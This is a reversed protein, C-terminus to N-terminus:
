QELVSWRAPAQVALNNIQAARWKTSVKTTSTECHERTRATVRSEGDILPRLGGDLRHLPVMASRPSRISKPATISHIHYPQWGLPPTRPLAGSRPVDIAQSDILSKKAEVECANIAAATAATRHPPAKIDPAVEATEVTEFVQAHPAGGGLVPDHRV